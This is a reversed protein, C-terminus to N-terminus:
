CVPRSCVRKLFAKKSRPFNPLKWNNKPALSKLKLPFPSSSLPLKGDLLFSITIKKGLCYLLEMHCGKKPFKRWTEKCWALMAGGLRDDDDENDEDDEDEDEGEDEDDDDEDDDDDDEDDDDSDTMIM